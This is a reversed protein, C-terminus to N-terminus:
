EPEDPQIAAWARTALYYDGLIIAIIPVAQGLIASAAAPSMVDQQILAAAGHRCLWVTAFDLVLLPFLMADFLALSLGYMMGQSKQIQGIALLGLVTAAIPASWGLPSIVYDLVMHWLPPRIEPLLLTNGRMASLILMIFFLSAWATAVIALLSLKADPHYHRRRPTTRTQAAPRRARAVTTGPSAISPPRRPTVPTTTRPPPPPRTSNNGAPETVSRAGGLL